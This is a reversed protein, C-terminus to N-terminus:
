YQRHNRSGGSNGLTEPVGSSDLTESVDM